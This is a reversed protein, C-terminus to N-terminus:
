RKLFSLYGAFMQADHRRCLLDHESVPCWGRNGDQRLSDDVVTDNVAGPLNSHVWDSAFNDLSGDLVASYASEAELSLSTSLSVTPFSIM